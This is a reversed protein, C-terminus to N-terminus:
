RTENPRTENKSEFNPICYCDSGSFKPIHIFLDLEVHNQM